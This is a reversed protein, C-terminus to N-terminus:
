ETVATADAHMLVQTAKLDHRQLWSFLKLLQELSVDKDGALVVQPDQGSQKISAVKDALATEFTIWNRYEKKDLAWHNGDDFLTITIPDKVDLPKSSESGEEPLSVELARPAVNATLLLFVLLIFIVDLLATMDPFVLNSSSHASPGVNIM